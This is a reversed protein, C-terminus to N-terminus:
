RFRTSSVCQGLVVHASRSEIQGAHASGKLVEGKLTGVLPPVEGNQLPVMAKSREPSNYLSGYDHQGTKLVLFFVM